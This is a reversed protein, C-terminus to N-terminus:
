WLVGRPSEIISSSEALPRSDWVGRVLKLIAFKVSILWPELELPTAMIIRPPASAVRTFPTSVAADIGQRCNLLLPRSMMDAASAFRSLAPGGDKLDTTICHLAVGNTPVPPAEAAATCLVNRAPLAALLKVKVGPRVAPKM